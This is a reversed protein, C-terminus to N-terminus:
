LIIKGVGILIPWEYLFFYPKLPFYFPFTLFSIPFLINGLVM